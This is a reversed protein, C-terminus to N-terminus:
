RTATPELAQNPRPLNHSFSLPIKVLRAGRPKFKWRKFCGIAANDLVAFGTSKEVSVFRVIGSKPSVHLVFVGSGEPRKGDPLSPYVPPPAYIASAIAGSQGFGSQPVMLLFATCLSLIRM